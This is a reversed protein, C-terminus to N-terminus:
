RHTSDEDLASRICQFLMDNLLPKEILHVGASGARSRIVASPHSTILIAPLRVNRDRLLQLLELGNMGPLNYDAVLCGSEPLDDEDLLATGTPYVQVCFGEVELAFKLSNRVAADGDIVLVV